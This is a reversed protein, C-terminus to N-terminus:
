SSVEKGRIERIRVFHSPILATIRSMLVGGLFVGAGGTYFFYVGPAEWVSRGFLGSVMWFLWTWGHSFALFGAIRVALSPKPGVV